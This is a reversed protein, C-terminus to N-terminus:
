LGESRDGQKIVKFLYTLGEVFIGKIAMGKSVLYQLKHEESPTLSVLHKFRKRSSITVPERDDEEERSSVGDIMHNGHPAAKTFGHDDTM